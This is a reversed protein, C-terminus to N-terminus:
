SQYSARERLLPNNPRTYIAQVVSINRTSFAAECYQLYYDWKRLFPTTFGAARIDSSHALFTNRWRRLTIAYSAGLDKLDHLFLDSTSLFSQNVRGISLLLSGPFIHRQIFDVGHRLREHRCDPVTIYQLGVLGNPKLLRHIQACFSNLYKDGLAEMMEISVIKDYQGRVNRYDIYRIEVRDTLGAERIRAEAFRHQEQSITIATIRCGYHLAAYESFGGWGCGIELIHDSPQLKLQQCLREYKAEQASELSQDPSSFLGSSYTMTRDLWLKYFDNGLDYHESINLKSMRLSNPRLLHRIKNLGRLVNLSAQSKRGSLQGPLLEVNSIAWSIVHCISDTEWEGEIYSEAFGIDGYLVCRVFFRHSRVIIDAQVSGDPHGFTHLSGDPMRMRLHGRNMRQMASVVLHCCAKEVVSLSHRSSPLAAIDDSM